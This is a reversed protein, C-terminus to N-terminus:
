AFTTVPLIGDAEGSSRQTEAVGSGDQTIGQGRMVVQGSVQEAGARVGTLLSSVAEGGGEELVEETVGVCGFM